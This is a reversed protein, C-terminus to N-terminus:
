HYCGKVLTLLLPVNAQDVCLLVRDRTTLSNWKSKEAIEDMKTRIDSPQPALLGASDGFLQVTCKDFPIREHKKGDKLKTNWEPKKKIAGTHSEVLAEFPTGTTLLLDVAFHSLLVSKDSGVPIKTDLIQISKSSLAGSKIDQAIHSLVDNELKEYVIMKPATTEKIIANPWVFKLSKYTLTYFYLNPAKDGLSQFKSLIIQIESFLAEYYAKVSVNNVVTNPIAGDINRIMTRLNIWVEKYSLIPPTSKISGELEGFLAQIAQSTAISTPIEGLTRLAVARSM